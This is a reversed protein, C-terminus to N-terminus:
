CAIAVKVESSDRADDKSTVVAVPTTSISETSKPDRLMHRLHMMIVFSSAHWMFIAAKFSTWETTLFIMAHLNYAEIVVYAAQRLCLGSDSWFPELLICLAVGLLIFALISNKNTIILSLSSGGCLLWALCYVRIM